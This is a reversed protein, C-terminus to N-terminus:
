AVLRIDLARRLSGHLARRDGGDGEHPQMAHARGSAEVVKWSMGSQFVAKSMAELYDGLSQPKIQAPAQDPM